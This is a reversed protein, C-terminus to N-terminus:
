SKFAGTVDFTFSPTVGTIVWSVRINSGWPGQRTTGAAVAATADWDTAQGATTESLQLARRGTVTTFQTFHAMNIWTSGDLQTDIYVDLTPNTGSTATVDLQIIMTRYGEYTNSFSLAGSAIRAGSPVLVVEGSSTRTATVNVNGQVRSVDVVLGNAVTGRQMNFHATGGDYMMPFNRTDLCDTPSPIFDVPTQMGVVTITGLNITNVIQTLLPFTPM